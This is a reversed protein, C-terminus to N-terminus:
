KKPNNNNKLTNPVIFVVQSLELAPARTKNKKKEKKLFITMMYKWFM